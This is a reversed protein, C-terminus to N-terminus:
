RLEGLLSLQSPHGQDLEASYIAHGSHSDKAKYMALDARQLLTAVDEAHDPFLSLGISAEIDVSAGSVTFREQLAHQVREAVQVATQESAHPLLVAFEDGGLRAVMDSERVAHRIRGAAAQLLVDGSHHGLTDNVEKFRDLDMVMVAGSM